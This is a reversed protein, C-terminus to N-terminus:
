KKRDEELQWKVFREVGEETTYIPNGLEKQTKTTVFTKSYSLVGIDFLCDIDKWNLDSNNIAQNTALLGM